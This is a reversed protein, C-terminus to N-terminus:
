ETKSQWSTLFCATLILGAGALRQLGWTEGLLIAGLAAAVLPVSFSLLSGAQISTEKYGRTFLVHGAFSLAAVLILLLWATPEVELTAFGGDSTLRQAIATPLSLMTGLTCFSLVIVLEGDTRRLKKICVISAGAVVASLLGALEGLSVTSLTPDVVLFM